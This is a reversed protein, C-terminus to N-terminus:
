ENNAGTTIAAISALQQKPTLGSDVVDLLEQKRDPYSEVAKELVSDVDAASNQSLLERCTRDIKARHAATQVQFVEDPGLALVALQDFPMSTHEMAKKVTTRIDTASPVGTTASPEEPAPDAPVAPEPAAPTVRRAAKKKGRKKGAPKEAALPEAPAIGVQEPTPDAEGAQDMEDATYMGSLQSFAKRLALAEACKGLMTQPMRSWMPGGANYESWRATATYAAKTGNPGWKYVTVTASKPKGKDDETFVADDIGALGNAGAVARFGDIGTQIQWKGKRSILYLHRQVPDLGTTSALHLLRDQDVKPADKYMARVVNDREENM